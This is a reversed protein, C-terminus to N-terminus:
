SIVNSGLAVSRHHMYLLLFSLMCLLVGGQAVGGGRRSGTTDHVCVTVM